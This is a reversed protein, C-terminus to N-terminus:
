SHPPPRPLFPHLFNASRPGPNVGTWEGAPCAQRQPARSFSRAITIFPTPQAPRGPKGSFDCLAAGLYDGSATEALQLRSSCSEATRVTLWLTPFSLTLGMLILFWGRAPRLLKLLQNNGQHTTMVM